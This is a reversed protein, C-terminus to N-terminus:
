RLFLLPQEAAPRRASRWADFEAYHATRQQGGHSFANYSTFLGRRWRRSRNPASRHPTFGPFIAVDGPQLLLPVVERLPLQEVTLHHHNGDRPSLYGFKHVGPFVETCGNEPDFPDIAIISATYSLPFSPWAIWDQHLHAGQAGPSKYILKDKFQCAPEGFLCSLADLMRTSQGLARLVPAIDFVPDFVDFLLEGTEV